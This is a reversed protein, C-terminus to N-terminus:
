VPSTADALSSGAYQRSIAAPRPRRAWLLPFCAGPRPSLCVRDRSSSRRVAGAVAGQRQDSSLARPRLGRHASEDSHGALCRAHAQWAVSLLPAPLAPMRVDRPQGEASRICACGYGGPFFVGPADHHRLPQSSSPLGQPYTLRGGFYSDNAYRIWRSARCSARYRRASLGCLMPQSARTVIDPDFSEGKPGVFLVVSTSIGSDTQSRACFFTIPGVDSSPRGFRLDHM